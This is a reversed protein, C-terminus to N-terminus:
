FTEIRSSYKGKKAEIIFLQDYVSEELQKYTKQGIIANTLSPTTNSHGVILLNNDRVENRITSYFSTDSPNYIIIELDLLSALPQATNRTRQYNTSYIKTINKELLIQALNEARKEGEETLTPDKTGDDAKEAHRVLYIQHNDIKNQNSISGNCCYFLVIFLLLGRLMM